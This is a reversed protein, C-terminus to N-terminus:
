YSIISVGPPITVAEENHPGICIGTAPNYINGFFDREPMTVGNVIGTKVAPSDSRLQYQPLFSSMNEHVSAGITSAPRYLQFLKPDAFIANTGGSFNNNAGNLVAFINNNFIGQQSGGYLGLSQGNIVFINNFVQLNTFGQSQAVTIIAYREFSISSANDMYFLNNYVYCDQSNGMVTWFQLGATASYQNRGDNISINYCITNNHFQYSSGYEFLAFGAGENDHSYNFRFVCNSCGGDIDFGGGDQKQSGNPGNKNNNSENYQVLTNDCEYLWIGLPGGHTCGNYGGNHHAHCHEIKSNVCLGLTIGSGSANSTQNINGKNNYVECHHINVSSRRSAPDPYGVYTGLFYIGDEYNDHILCHSIEINTFAKASSGPYGFIGGYGHGHIDCNTIVINDVDDAGPIIYVGSVSVPYNQTVIELNDIVVNSVGISITYAGTGALTAKRGGFSTYTIPRGPIGPKPVLNGAYTYGGLFQVFSGPSINASNVKDITKWPAAGSLGSNNDDGNPSVFYVTQAFVQTNLLDIQTQKQGVLGTLTSLINAVEAFSDEDPPAGGTIGNLRNQLDLIQADYNGGTSTNKRTFSLTAM